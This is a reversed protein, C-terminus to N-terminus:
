ILIAFLRFDASLRQVQDIGVSFIPNAILGYLCINKNPSKWFQGTSLIEWQNCSKILTQQIQQFTLNHWWDCSLFNM